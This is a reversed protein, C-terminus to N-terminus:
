LTEKRARIAAAEVAATGLWKAPWCQDWNELRIALEEVQEQTMPTETTM